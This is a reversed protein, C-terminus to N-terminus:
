SASCGVVLNHRKATCVWFCFKLSRFGQVLIDRLKQNRPLVESVHGDAGESFATPHLAAGTFMVGDSGLMADVQPGM